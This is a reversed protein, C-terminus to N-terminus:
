LRLVVACILGDWQKRKLKSTTTLRLVV